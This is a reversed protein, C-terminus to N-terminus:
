YNHELDPINEKNETEYSFAIFLKSSRSHQQVQKIKMKRVFTM